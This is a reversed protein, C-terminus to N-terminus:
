KKQSLIKSRRKRTRAATVADVRNAASQLLWRAAEITTQAGEEGGGIMRALESVREEGELEEVTTATRGKELKKSVIYHHDAFRAIQAQHTVCLVQRAEALSKLRRGVAEAVHGGIGVDIEDFVVTAGEVAVVGAQLSMYVTRLTLMLRSLEGGSAVRSLPRPEEGPNASLYFEVSDAGHQTFYSESAIGEGENDSGKPGKDHTPQATRIMVFFRAREMAVFKLDEMVRVSLTEAARLRRETLEVAGRRYDREAEILERRLTEERESLDSLRQLREFLEEQVKLIGELDSNYKRKLRELESLRDEIQALRDPSFEVGEGYSRLADATEMLGATSQQFLELLPAIRTDITSLEELQRGLAALRDIVSGEKEYLEAYAGTGLQLLKEAHTLLKRERYLEADEGPNPAIRKIESLEYQLLDAAREREMMERELESLEELASRWRAYAEAVSKRQALNAGFSDLLDMQSQASLLSRQEGQGHIAVLFPQLLRLTAARVSQDEVFMRSRGNAHIERRILLDSGNEVEVGASDLIKRIEKRGEAGVEFLGEVIAVREGTRVQLTSSRAGMLLSLSDVIISKGSGTEGTLLNLGTHFSIELQDIVAFNSINLYKLM